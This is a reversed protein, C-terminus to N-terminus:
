TVEPGTSVRGPLLVVTSRFPSGSQQVAARSISSGQQASRNGMQRPSFLVPRAVEVKFGLCWLTELPRDEPRRIQAEPVYFAGWCGKGAGPGLQLSNRVRLYHREPRPLKTHSPTSSELKQARRSRSHAQKCQSKPVRM